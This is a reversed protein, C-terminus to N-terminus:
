QIISISLPRIEFATLRPSVVEIINKSPLSHCYAQFSLLEIDNLKLLGEKFYTLVLHQQVEKKGWNARKLHYRIDAIIDNFSIEITETVIKDM